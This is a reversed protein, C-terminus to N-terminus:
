RISIISRYVATAKDGIKLDKHFHGFYWHKYVCRKRIEDLFVNYEKEEPTPTCSLSGIVSLPATHTLIYDVAFDHKELNDWAYGMEAKTPLEENWFSYNLQREGRDTSYAGGMTFFSHGSLHFIEGRMLHYINKRIRHVKGGNWTEVPFEHLAPFNEHNGDIFCLHYPRTELDNLFAHETQDDLFIFGFDGLVICYDDSTWRKEEPSYIFRFQDGHTDGTLYIM